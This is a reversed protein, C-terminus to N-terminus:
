NEIKETLKSLENMKTKVLNDSDLFDKLYKNSEEELRKVTERQGNLIVVLADYRVKKREREEQAEKIEQNKKNIKKDDM